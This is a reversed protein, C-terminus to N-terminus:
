VPPEVSSSIGPLGRPHRARATLKPEDVRIPIGDTDSRSLAEETACRRVTNSAEMIAGQMEVLSGSLRATVEVTVEDGSRRVLQTVLVM